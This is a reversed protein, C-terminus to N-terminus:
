TVPPSPMWFTGDADPVKRRPPKTPKIHHDYDYIPLGTRTLRIVSTRPGPLLLFLVIVRFSPFSFLPRRSRPHVKHTHQPRNSVSVATACAWYSLQLISGWANKKNVWRAHMPQMGGILNAASPPTRWTTIKHTGRAGCWKVLLKCGRRRDRADSLLKNSLIITARMHHCHRLFFFLVFRARAFPTGWPVMMM